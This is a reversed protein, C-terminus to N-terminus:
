KQCRCLEPRVYAVLPIGPPRGAFARVQNVVMVFDFIYDNALGEGDFISAVAKANGTGTVPLSRGRLVVLKGSKLSKLLESFGQKRHPQFMM